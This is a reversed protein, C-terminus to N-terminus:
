QSRKFELPQSILNKVPADRAKRYHGWLDGSMIEWKNLTLLLTGM